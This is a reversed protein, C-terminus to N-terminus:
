NKSVTSSEGRRKNKKLKLKSNGSAVKGHIDSLNISRLKKTNKFKNKLENAKKNSRSKESKEKEKSKKNEYEQQRQSIEDSKKLVEEALRKKEQEILDAKKKVEKKELERQEKLSLLKLKKTSQQQEKLRTDHIERRVKEKRFRDVQEKDKSFEDLILKHVKDDIPSMHSSVEVNRSKLFSVIDTHSINLEKAIQFIRVKAM